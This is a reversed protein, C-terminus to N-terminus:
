FSLGSIAEINVDWIPKVSFGRGKSKAFRNAESETDFSSVPYYTDDAVDFHQRAIVVWNIYELYDKRLDGRITTTLVDNSDRLGDRSAVDYPIEVQMLKAKDLLALRIDDLRDANERWGTDSLHLKWCVNLLEFIKGDGRYLPAGYEKGDLKNIFSVNNDRKSINFKKNAWAWTVIDGYTKKGDGGYKDFITKGLVNITENDIEVPYACDGDIELAKIFNYAWNYRELLEQDKKSVKKEAKPAKPAKAKKPEVHPPLALLVHSDPENEVHEVANDIWSLCVNGNADKVDYVRGIGQVGSVANWARRLSGYYSEVYSKGSEISRKSQKWGVDKGVRELAEKEYGSLDAFKKSFDVGADQALSVEKYIRRKIREVKGITERRSKNRGILWLAGATILLATIM